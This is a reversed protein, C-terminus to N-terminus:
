LPLYRAEIAGLSCRARGNSFDNVHAVFQETDDLAVSVCLTVNETFREDELRANWSTLRKRAPEYLPYPLTVEMLQCPTCRALPAEDIADVAAKTYARM